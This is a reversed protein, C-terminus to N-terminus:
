PRRELGTMATAEERDCWEQYHLEVARDGLTFEGRERLIQNQFRVAALGLWM